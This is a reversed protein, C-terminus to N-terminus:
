ILYLTPVIFANKYLDTRSEFPITEDQPFIVRRVYPNKKLTGDMQEKRMGLYELDNVSVGFVFTGGGYIFYCRNPTNYYYIKPRPSRLYAGFRKMEEANYTLIPLYRYSTRKAQREFLYSYFNALDKKYYNRRELRSFTWYLSDEKIVRGLIDTDPYENKVNEWGILMTPLTPDIDSM